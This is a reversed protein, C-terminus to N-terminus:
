LYAPRVSITASGTLENVGPALAFWQLDDSDYSVQGAGGTFTKALVDMTGAAGVTVSRGLTTNTLTGAGGFVISMRYTMTTGPLTEGDAYDTAEGYWCGDLNLFSTSLSAETAHKGMAPRIGECFCRAEQTVAEIYDDEYSLMRTVVRIGPTPMLAKKIADLNTNYQAVRGQYTSPRAGSADVDWVNLGVPWSYAGLVQSSPLSGPVGPVVLPEGRWQSTGYVGEWLDIVHAYSTLDFDDVLLTEVLGAM